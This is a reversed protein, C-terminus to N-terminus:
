SDYSCIRNHNSTFNTDNSPIRLHNSAKDSDVFLEKDKDEFEMEYGREEDGIMEERIILKSKREHDIQPLSKEPSSRESEQETHLLGRETNLTEM